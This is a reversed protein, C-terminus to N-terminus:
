LATKVGGAGNQFFVPEKEKNQEAAITQLEEQSLTGEICMEYVADNEIAACNVTTETAFTTASFTLAILTIITKM